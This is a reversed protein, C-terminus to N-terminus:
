PTEDATLEKADDECTFIEWIKPNIEVEGEDTNQEHHSLFVLNVESEVSTHEELLHKEIKNNCAGDNECEDCTSKLKTINRMVKIMRKERKTPSSNMLTNLDTVIKEISLDGEIEGVIEEYTKRSNDEKTAKMASQAPEKGEVSKSQMIIDYNNGHEKRMHPNVDDKSRFDDGCLECEFASSEM